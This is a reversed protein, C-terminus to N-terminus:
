PSLQSDVRTYELLFVVVHERPILIAGSMALLFDKLSSYLFLLSSVHTDRTTHEFTFQNVHGSRSWTMKHPLCEM